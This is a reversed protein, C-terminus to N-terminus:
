KGTGNASVKAKSAPIETKELITRQGNEQPHIISYIQAINGRIRDPALLREFMQSLAEDDLSDIREKLQDIGVVFYLAAMPGLNLAQNIRDNVTVSKEQRKKAM